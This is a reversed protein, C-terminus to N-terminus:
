LRLRHQQWLLLAWIEGALLVACGRGLPIPSSGASGFAVEGRGVCHGCLVKQLRTQQTTSEWVGWPDVPDAKHKRLTKLQARLGEDCVGKPHSQFFLPPLLAPHLLRLESSPLHERHLGEAHPSPSCKM